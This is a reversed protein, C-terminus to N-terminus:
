IFNVEISADFEMFLNLNNLTSNLPAIYTFQINLRDVIKNNDYDDEWYQFTLTLKQIFFILDYLLQTVKITASTQFKETEANLHDYSSIVIIQNDNHESMLIYNYHFKVNPQEWIYHSQLWLDNNIYCILFYPVVIVFILSIVSFLTAFSCVSHKYSIFVNKNYLTLLKM